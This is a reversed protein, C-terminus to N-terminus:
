ATANKFGAGAAGIGTTGVIAPLDADIRSRPHGTRPMIRYRAARAHTSTNIYGTVRHVQQTGFQIGRTGQTAAADADTALKLAAFQRGLRVAGACHVV